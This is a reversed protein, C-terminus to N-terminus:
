KCRKILIRMMNDNEKKLENIEKQYSEVEGKEVMNERNKHENNFYNKQQEFQTQLNQIEERLQDREMSVQQLQTRFEEAEQEIKEAAEITQMIELEKAILQDKAKKEDNISRLIQILGVSDEYIETVNNLFFQTYKELQQSNKVYSSM